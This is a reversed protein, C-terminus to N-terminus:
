FIVEFREEIKWNEMVEITKSFYCVREPQIRSLYHGSDRRRNGNEDGIVRIKYKGPLLYSYTVVSDFTCFDQRLTRLDADLLELIYHNQEFFRFDIKLTGYNKSSKTSFDMMVSDNVHGLYSEFVSDPCVVRYRTQERFPYDFRLFRRNEDAFAAGSPVEVTDKKTEEFLKLRDLDAKLVPYPFEIMPRMNLETRCRNILNLTRKATDAQATQRRRLAPNEAPNFSLTDWVRGNATLEFDVKHPCLNGIFFVTVTDRDPSYEVLYQATTDLDSTQRLGFDFAEGQFSFTHICESKLERKLFRFVTDEEEFLYLTDLPYSIEAATDPHINETQASDAKTTTDAPPIYYPQVPHSCFAVKEAKQDFLYNRNKELLASLAYEGAALYRFTFRGRKDTMTFYDPIQTMLASDTQNKHLMVGANEVSELTVADRVWGTLSLSDVYSGTSFVFVTQPLVNGERLDKVAGNCSFIYTVGSDLPANFKILISKGQVTYEPIEKLPPSILFNEQPNDLEVYEDFFIQLQATKCNISLNEPIQKVIKPPEVDKDGGSLSTVSACAALLLFGFPFVFRLFRKKVHLLMM